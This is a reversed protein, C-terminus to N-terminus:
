KCTNLLASVDTASLATFRDRNWSVDIFCLTHPERTAAEIKQSGQSGAVGSPSWDNPDTQAEPQV